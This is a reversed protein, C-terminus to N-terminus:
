QQPLPPEFLTAFQGVAQKLAARQGAVQEDHHHSPQQLLEITLEGRDAAQEPCAGVVHPDDDLGQPAQRPDHRHESLELALRPAALVPDQASNPPM